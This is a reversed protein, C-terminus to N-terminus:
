LELKTNSDLDNTIFLRYWIELALLGLFKNVHRVDSETNKSYKKVWDSNIIGDEILRSNDFYYFFIKKAYSNWMNLTNVSFGQKKQSILNTINYKDLIKLLPLKGKNKSQDYKMENSLQCSLQILQKNLIPSINQINFNKHIRDYLPQMNHLLKGNFDALFVQTLRPLSNDFYPKLIEHIENWSFKLNKNFIEEQEPIWDREHCNLYSIIKEKSSSTDSTQELFKKYRFTYGGFLEDGGDGSLFVNTFNKMKKVLYYWHLDWFPQKVISIAKPLEELFNDLEFIHHNTEFKESIKKAANTEDISHSFKVSISEINV